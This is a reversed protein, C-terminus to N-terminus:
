IYGPSQANLTAERGIYSWKRSLNAAIRFLSMCVRTIQSMGSRKYIHVRTTQLNRAAQCDSILGSREVNICNVEFPVYM